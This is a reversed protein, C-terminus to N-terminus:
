GTEGRLPRSLLRGLADRADFRGAVLGEVTEVIPMDVGMDRAMEALVPVTHAGEAVTKRDQLLGTANAGEGLAKGFSMNRSATSSCTLVLDGLGSLGGLTEERAGLALGFRVMEAFGRSILSARANEGLALGAAVGCAIALVNKVAGGVEAGILDDSYYPRFTPRAIRDILTRSLAEDAAAFTVATPLDRAVEAAFTPGSLVAISAAPAADAAVDTMLRRTGAEIGKSCLILPRDGVDFALLVRALHQAPTVALLADCDTLAELDDSAEITDSLAVGPLFTRNERRECIDTVVEKERAWLCVPGNTAAVAALATGWAGGGIVGLRMPASM